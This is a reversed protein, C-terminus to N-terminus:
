MVKDMLIKNNSEMELKSADINPNSKSAIVTSNNGKNQNM